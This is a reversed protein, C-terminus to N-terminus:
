PATYSGSNSVAKLTGNLPLPQFCLVSGHSIGASWFVVMGSAPPAFFGTLGSLDPIAVTTSGNLYNGTATVEITNEATVSPLWVMAVADCVGTKGSFGAYSLDFSPWTAAAPGAYSWAPPFTFTVPAASALSTTVGVEELSNSTSSATATLTYYDGSEMAGAPLAPYGTTADDATLIGQGDGMMYGAFTTPAGYGSPVSNYTIPEQTTQDATGMVVTAGGNLTGPVTQSSFNQAGVLSFTEESGNLVSNYALAMVRDTGTPAAFSFSGSPVNIYGEELAAGNQASINLFSTGSIASADVSGTLTETAGTSSATPCSESFSTGDLTSAEFV